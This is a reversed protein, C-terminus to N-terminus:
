LLRMGKETAMHRDIIALVQPIVAEVIEAAIDAYYMSVRDDGHESDGDIMQVCENWRTAQERFLQALANGGENDQGYTLDDFTESVKTYAEFCISTTLCAWSNWGFIVGDSWVPPPAFLANMRGYAKLGERFDDYYALMIAPSEIKKGRVAGHAHSPDRTNADAVGGYARLMSLEEYGGHTVIGTKWQDHTVSGVIYGNRTDDDYIATVEYSTGCTQFEQAKYRIWKDNDYPVYLLRPLKAGPLPFTRGQVCVPCMYNSSIIDAGELSLRALLAEGGDRLAFSWRVTLTAMRIELVATTGGNERLCRAERPCNALAEGTYLKGQYRFEFSCTRTSPRGSRKFAIECRAQEPACRLEIWENELIFGEADQRFRVEREM